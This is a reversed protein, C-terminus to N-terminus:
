EWGLVYFAKTALQVYWRDDRVYNLDVTRASEKWGPFLGTIQYAVNHASWEASLDFASRNTINETRSIIASVRIRDYRNNVLYSNEIKAVQTESKFTVAVTANENTGYDALIEDIATKAESETYSEAIEKNIKEAIILNVTHNISAAIAAVKAGAYVTAAATTAVLSATSTVLAVETAALTVAITFLELILGFFMGNEDVRSVPNNGCYAFMNNGTFGQGTSVFADANLFRGVEPNYYRSGLYYLGTEEDYVYGQLSTLCLYCGECFFFRYM